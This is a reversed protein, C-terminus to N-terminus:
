EHCDGKKNQCPSVPFPLCPSASIRPSETDGRRGKETDKIGNRWTEANNCSIVSVLDQVSLEHLHQGSWVQVQDRDPDIGVLLLDPHTALLAFAADPRSNELDFLIADPELEGLAQAGPYPTSLTIVEFQPQKQLSAAVTGM